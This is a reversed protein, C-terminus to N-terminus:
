HKVRFYLASSYLIMNFNQKLLHLSFYTDKIKKKHKNIQKTHVGNFVFMIFNAIM